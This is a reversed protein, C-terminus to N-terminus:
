SEIKVINFPKTPLSEIANRIWRIVDSHEAIFASRSAASMAYLGRANAYLKAFIKTEKFFESAQKNKNQKELEEMIIWRYYYSADGSVAIRHSTAYGMLLIGGMVADELTSYYIEEISIPFEALISVEFFHTAGQPETQWFEHNQVVAYKGIHRTDVDRVEVYTAGTFNFLKRYQSVTLELPWEWTALNPNKHSIGMLSQIQHAKEEDAYYLVPFGRYMKRNWASIAKDRDSGKGLVALLMGCKSSDPKEGEIGQVKTYVLGSVSATRVPYSSM